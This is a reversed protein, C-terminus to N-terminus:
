ETPLTPGKPEEAPAAPEEAVPAVPAAPAAPEYVPREPAPAYAPEPAPTYVPQEQALLALYANTKAATHYPIVFLTGIGFVMGGVIYWGIFSLDLMFLEGKHGQTMRKSEDLCMKWDYDPHDAKIYFAFSYAYSMVIGPIVFLLSWLSIFITMLLGLLFNGTFDETFGTFMNNLSVEGSGRALRLFEKSQAYTLPGFVLLSGVVPIVNGAGTLASILLCFLAAMLWITQFIGGGLQARANAKIQIRDM